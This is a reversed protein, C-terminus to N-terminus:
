PALVGADLLLQRVEYLPLGVVATYSGEIRTVFVAAGGQIAYAGAKDVPEGTLWYAEIQAPSIDGFSVKTVVCCTQCNIKNNERSEDNNSKVTDSCALTVATCVSHTSNALLTLMEVAHERNKPKGLVEGNSQIVITDAGLVAYDAPTANEALYKVGQLAKEGALRQAYSTGSEAVQQSENVSTPLKEFEVGM